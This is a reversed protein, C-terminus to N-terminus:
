AEGRMLQVWKALAQAQEPRKWGREAAMAVDDILGLVQDTLRADFWVPLEGVFAQGKWEPPVDLMGVGGTYRRAEAESAPQLTTLDSAFGLGVWYCRGDEGMWVMEYVATSRRLCYILRAGQLRVQKVSVNESM